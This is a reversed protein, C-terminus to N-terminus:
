QVVWNPNADIQPLGREKLLINAERIFEHLKYPGNWRGNKWIEHGRWTHRYHDKGGIAEIALKIVNPAPPRTDDNAYKGFLAEEYATQMM